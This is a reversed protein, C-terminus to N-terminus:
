VADVHTSSQNALMPLGSEGIRGGCFIRVKSGSKALEDGQIFLRPAIGIRYVLTMRRMEQSCSVKVRDVTHSDLRRRRKM